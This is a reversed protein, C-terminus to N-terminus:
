RVQFKVSGLELLYRGSMAALRAERRSSAYSLPTVVPLRATRPIRRLSATRMQSKPSALGVFCEPHQAPTRLDFLILIFNVSRGFHM